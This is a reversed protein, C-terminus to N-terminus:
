YKFKQISFKISKFPIFPYFGVFYNNSNIEKEIEYKETKKSNFDRFVFLKM